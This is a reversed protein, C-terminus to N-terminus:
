AIPMPAPVCTSVPITAAANLTQWDALTGTTLRVSRLDLPRHAAVDAVPLAPAASALPATTPAPLATM